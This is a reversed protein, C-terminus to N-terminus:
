AVALHSGVPYSDALIDLHLLLRTRLRWKRTFKDLFYGWVFTKFGTILVQIAAFPLCIRKFLSAWNLKPQVGKKYAHFVQILVFMPM